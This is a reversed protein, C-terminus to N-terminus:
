QKLGKIRALLINKTKQEIKQTKKKTIHIIFIAKGIKIAYFIRFIGDSYSLRLEHLGKAISFLPRSVPPGLKQGSELDEFLAYADILVTKPAKRLEKEAQHLM